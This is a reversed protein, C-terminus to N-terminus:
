NETEKSIEIVEGDVETDNGEIFDNIISDEHEDNVCDEMVVPSTDYLCKFIVECEEMM